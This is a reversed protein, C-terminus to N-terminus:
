TKGHRGRTASWALRALGALPAFFGAPTERAGVLFAQLFKSM